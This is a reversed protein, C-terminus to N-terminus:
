IALRPAEAIMRLGTDRLRGVIIHLLQFLFKNALRPHLAIIENLDIRCLAAFRTPTIATCTAFRHEGDILSMEGLI